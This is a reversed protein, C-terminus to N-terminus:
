SASPRASARSSSTWPHVWVADAAFIRAEPEGADPYFLPEGFEQVGFEGIIAQVDDRVLFAVFARAAEANVANHRDPNVVIAHYVNNLAAGGEFLIDLDLNDRQALYTGRDTLTYARRESAIQLTPGMGQGSESYWSEGAPVELGADEWLAIELAHTGSDDGRSIFPAQAVAIAEMADTASGANALGAPDTAPGVIIFDNHMILTREIGNGEDIMRQEVAPSHALVVDADGNSGQQIAQGSGVAIVTADYGTEDEFMPILVDLLGSDQTSTTTALIMDNDDGGCASALALAAAVVASLAIRM